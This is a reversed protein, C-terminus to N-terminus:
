LNTAEIAHCFRDVKQHFLHRRNKFFDIEPKLLPESEPDEALARELDAVYENMSARIMTHFATKRQNQRIWDACKRRMTIHPEHSELIEREVPLLSEGQERAKKLGAVLSHYCCHGDPAQERIVFSHGEWQFEESAREFALIQFALRKTSDSGDIGFLLSQLLRVDMWLGEKEYLPTRPLIRLLSAGDKSLPARESLFRVIEKKEQFLADKSSIHQLDYLLIQLHLKRLLEVCEQKKNQLDLSANHSPYTIPFFVSNAYDKVSALWEADLKKCEEFKRTLSDLDAQLEKSDRFAPLLAEKTNELLEKIYLFFFINLPDKQYAQYVSLEEANYISGDGCTIFGSAPKKKSRLFSLFPAHLHPAVYRNMCRQIDQLASTVNEQDLAEIFDDLKSEYKEVIEAVREQIENYERECAAKFTTGGATLSDHFLTTTAEVRYLATKVEKKHQLAQENQHLAILKEKEKQLSRLFQKTDESVTLRANALQQLIGCSIKQYADISRAMNVVCANHCAVKERHFFETDNASDYVWRAMVGMGRLGANGLSGAAGKLIEIGSHALSLIGDLNHLVLPALPALGAFTSSDKFSFGEKTEHLFGPALPRGTLLASQVNRANFAAKSQSSVTGAPLSLSQGDLELVTSFYIQTILPQDSVDSLILPAEKPMYHPTGPKVDSLARTACKAVKKTKPPSPKKEEDDCFFSTANCCAKQQTLHEFVSHSLTPIVLEDLLKQSCETFYDRKDGKVTVKMEKGHFPGKSIVKLVARSSRRISHVFYFLCSITCNTKDIPNQYSFLILPPRRREKRKMWEMLGDKCAKGGVLNMQIGLRNGHFVLETKNVLSPVSPLEHSVAEESVSSQTKKEDAISDIICARADKFFNRAANSSRKKSQSHTDEDVVVVVKQPSPTKHEPLPSNSPESTSTPASLTFTNWDFLSPMLKPISLTEFPYNQAPTVKKEYSQKWADTLAHVLMDMSSQDRKAQQVVLQPLAFVFQTAEKCFDQIPDDFRNILFSGGKYAAYGLGLALLGEGCIFKVVAMGVGKSCLAPVGRSAAFDIAAEVLHQPGMQSILGGPAHRVLTSLADSGQEMYSFGKILSNMTPNKKIDLFVKTAELGQQVVDSIKNTSQLEDQATKPDSPDHWTHLEQPSIPSTSRISTM